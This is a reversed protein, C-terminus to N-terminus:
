DLFLSSLQKSSEFINESSYIESIVALMDVGAEVLTTANKRTIGGIACVPLGLPKAQTILEIDARVAQPKTPSAFFSGFAIYDAGEAQAQRALEIKNYCSVGIIKDHGLQQRACQISQDDIGLHVGDAAVKNALGIDDNVIFITKYKECLNKLNKAQQYRREADGSKDRYQLIKVGGLLSQEILELYNLKDLLDKSTIAYLGGPINM